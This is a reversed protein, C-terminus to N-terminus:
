LSHTEQKRAADAMLSLECMSKPLLIPDSSTRSVGGPWEIASSREIVIVPGIMRGLSRRTKAAPGDLQRRPTRLGDPRRYLALSRRRRETGPSRVAIVAKLERSNRSRQNERPELDDHNLRRPLIHERSGIATYTGLSSTAPELGTEREVKLLKPVGM